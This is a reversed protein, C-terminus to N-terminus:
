KQLSIIATNLGYDKGEARFSHIKDKYCVSCINSDIINEPKLGQKQLM